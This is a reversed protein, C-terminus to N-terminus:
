QGLLRKGSSSFKEIADFVDSLSIDNFYKDIFVHEAYGSQLPLFNSILKGFGTRLVLDIDEPVWLNNKVDDESLTKANKVAHILEDWPNYAALLYLKRSNRSKYKKTETSLFHLAQYSSIPLLDIRGVTHVSCEWKKCLSPLLDRFLREAAQLVSTLEEPKRGLNEKSLGYVSQLIVEKEFVADFIEVLKQASYLYAFDLSKNNERAWRRAGDPIIGLHKVTSSM